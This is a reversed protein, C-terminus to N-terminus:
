DTFAAGMVPLTPSNSHIAEAAALDRSAAALSVNLGDTLFQKAQRGAEVRPGPVPVGPLIGPRTRAQEIFFLRVADVSALLEQAARLNALVETDTYGFGPRELLALVSERATTFLADPVAGDAATGGDNTTGNGPETM